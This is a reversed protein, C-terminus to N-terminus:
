ILMFERRAKVNISNSTTIAIMAMRAASSNGTKDRAFTLACPMLHMFLTFCNCNAQCNYASSQLSAMGGLPLPDGPMLWDQHAPLKMALGGSWVLRSRIIFLRM